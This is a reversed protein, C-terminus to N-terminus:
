KVDPTIDRISIFRLEALPIQLEDAVIAMLQAAVRDPVGHLKDVGATVGGPVTQGASVPEEAAASGRVPRVGGPMTINPATTPRDLLERLLANNRATLSCQRGALVAIIIICVMTVLGLFALVALLAVLTGVTIGSSM